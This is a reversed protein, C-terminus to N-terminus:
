IGTVHGVIDLPHIGVWWSPTYWGMSPSIFVRGLCPGKCLMGCSGLNCKSAHRFNRGIVGPSIMNYYVGACRQTQTDYGSILQFAWTDEIYFPARQLHPGYSFWATVKIVERMMTVIPKSYQKMQMHRPTFLIIPEGWDSLSNSHETSYNFDVPLM